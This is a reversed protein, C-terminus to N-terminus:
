TFRLWRQIFARIRNIYTRQEWGYPYQLLLEDLIMALHEQSVRVGERFDIAYLKIGEYQVRDGFKLVPHLRQPDSDDLLCQIIPRRHRVAWDLEAAVWENDVSNHSVIVMFKNCYHLAALVFQIYSEAGGSKANHLFCADFMPFKHAVVPDFIDNLVREYDRWSHSIFLGGSWLRKHQNPFRSEIFNPEYKQSLVERANLKM